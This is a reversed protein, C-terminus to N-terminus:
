ANERSNIQNLLATSVFMALVLFAIFFPILAMGIHTALFGFGVPLLLVGLYAATLEAGIVAQSLSKGFHKPTESLMGPFVPACGFGVLALGVPAASAPLPLMLVVAGLLVVSLGATILRRNNVKLAIFGCLMRGATIGLYYLSIWGAAQASTVARNKVLYTSGWCVVTYETACYCLFTLMALKVGKIKLLDFLKIVVSEEEPNTDKQAKWVPISLVLILVITMQVAGIAFYGSRWGSARKMFVSMVLPGAMAGLGWFCHLWNMHSAQYHLALYNNLATDIAGAGLGMPIGLLLLCCLNPVFGYGIIACATLLTSTIVIRFTGFKKIMRAANLSSLITGMTVVSNAVAEFSMPLHLQVYIAPWATGLLSDPLGLGIFCLYIVILLLTAM